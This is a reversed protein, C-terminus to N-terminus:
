DLYFVEYNDPTFYFGYRLPGALVNAKNNVEIPASYPTGIEALSDEKPYAICFFPGEGFSPGYLSNKYIAKRKDKALCKFPPLRESNKLSFIFAKPTDSWTGVPNSEAFVLFCDTLMRVTIM